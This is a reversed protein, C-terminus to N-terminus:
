IVIGLGFFLGTSPARLWKDWEAGQHGVTLDAIDRGKGGGNVYFFGLFRHKVGGSIFVRQGLNLLLGAGLNIGLGTYTADYVSGAMRAGNQVTLLPFCLGLLYYAQLVSNKWPFGWGNVELVYLSARSATGGWLAQHSSHAVNFEWLGSRRRIGLGVALGFDQSLKPVFFAKEFHWLTLDGSLDGQLNFEQGSLSLFFGRPESAPPEWDPAASAPLCVLAAAMMM